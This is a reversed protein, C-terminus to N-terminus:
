SSKKLVAVIRNHFSFFTKCMNMVTTHKYIQVNSLIQYTKKQVSVYQLNELQKKM